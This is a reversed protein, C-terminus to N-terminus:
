STPNLSAEFSYTAHTGSSSEHRPPHQYSAQVLHLYVRDLGLDRDPQIVIPNQMYRREFEDLSVEQEFAILVTWDWGTREYALERKNRDNVAFSCREEQVAIQSPAIHETDDVVILGDATYSVPRFPGGRTWTILVNHIRTKQSAARSVNELVGSVSGSEAVLAGTATSTTNVLTSLVSPNAQLAGSAEIVVPQGAITGLTPPNAQLAGTAGIVRVARGLLTPPPATLAGSVLARPGATISLTPPPAVLAGTALIVGSGASSLTASGFSAGSSISNAAVQQVSSLPPTTVFLGVGSEAAVVPDATISLPYLRDGCDSWTWTWVYVGANPQTIASGTATRAPVNAASTGLTATGANANTVLNRLSDVAWARYQEADGAEPLRPWSALEIHNVPNTSTGFARFDIATGHLGASEFSISYEGRTDVEFSFTARGSVCAQTLTGTVTGDSARVTATVNATCSSNPAYSRTMSDIEVTFSEDILVCQPATRVVLFGGVKDPGGVASSSDVPGIDPSSDLVNGVADRLMLASANAGNGRLSSWTQPRFDWAEKENLRTWKPNQYEVYLANTLLVTNTFGTPLSTDHTACHSATTTADAFASSSANLGTFYNNQFRSNTFKTGASTQRVLADGGSFSNGAVLWHDAVLTAASDDLDITNEPAITQIANGLIAVDSVASTAPQYHIGKGYCSGVWNERVISKSSGTAAPDLRWFTAELDSSRADIRRAYNGEILGSCEDAVAGLEDLVNARLILNGGRAFRGLRRAYCGEVRAAFGAAASQVYIGTVGSADWGHAYSGTSHYRLPALDGPAFQVDELVLGEQSGNVHVSVPQYGASPDEGLLTLGSLKAFALDGHWHNLVVEDRTTGSAGQVDIRRTNARTGSFGDYSGAKLYVIAGDDCATLFSLSRKAQGETLGDNGDNGDEGVWYETRSTGNNVEVQITEGYDEQGGSLPLTETRLYLSGDSFSSSDVEIEFYEHWLGLESERAVRETSREVIDWNTGDTSSQFEVFDVGDRHLAAARLTVTGTLVEGPVVNAWRIIVAM